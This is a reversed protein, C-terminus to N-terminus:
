IAKAARASPLLGKGLRRLVKNSPKELTIYLAISVVILVSLYQLFALRTPAPGDGWLGYYFVLYVPYHLIYVGYSANGLLVAIRSSLPALWPSRCYAAVLVVALFLVAYLNTASPLALPVLKLWVPAWELTLVAVLVVAFLHRAKTVIFDPNQRYFIGAWVGLCFSCLHLLPFYLVFQYLERSPPAYNLLWTSGLVSLLWLSVVSFLGQKLSLKASLVWYALPFVAYFFM